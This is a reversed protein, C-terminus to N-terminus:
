PLPTEATLLTLLRRIQGDPQWFMLVGTAVVPLATRPPSLSVDIRYVVDPHLEVIGSPLAGNEVFERVAQPSLATNGLPMPLSDGTPLAMKGELEVRARMTFAPEAPDVLLVTMPQSGVSRLAITAALEGDVSHLELSAEVAAVPQRTLALALEQLLQEFGDLAADGSLGALDFRAERGGARIQLFRNPADPTAQGLTGGRALLDHESVYVSLASVEAAPAQGGFNGIRSVRQLPISYSSGLFLTAQGDAGLDLDLAVPPRGDRVRYIIELHEPM